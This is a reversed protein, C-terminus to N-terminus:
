PVLATTPRTLRLRWGALIRGKRGSAREWLSLSFTMGEDVGPDRGPVDANGDHGSDAGHPTGARKGGKEGLLRLFLSSQLLIIFTGGWAILLAIVLHSMQNPYQHSLLMLTALITPGAVLPIALPVIFPEEGAPLGSSSGEASPFIMKIAILFLIIGGSISVTEARLNLFALIKEGAFLFIFMVLLAILLERIMIARRRKPETHKLVSMFIPLNGLPDMILILLVAASIIESM